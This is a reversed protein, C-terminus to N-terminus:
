LFKNSVVLFGLGAVHVSAGVRFPSAQSLGEFQAQVVTMGLRLHLLRRRHVSRRLFSIVIWVHQREM